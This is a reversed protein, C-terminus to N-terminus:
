GIIDSYYKDYSEVTRAIDFRRVYERAEDALILAKAYNNMMEVMADACSVYNDREVSMCLRGHDAVEWPGDHETVILPLGAGMGEAVTLGFGEYRSPHVMADFTHLHSYIYDRDRLGLFHVRDDVGETAALERLATLGDGAGIFTIEVNDIGRRHLEGLARIAIDQGKLEPSLRGVQLFRFVDSVERKRVPISDIRIGNAVTRVKANSLRKRVDDGVIDTIAAIHVGNCYQMDANLCHVTYLLRSRRMRVLRCFKEHHVHVIDPKLRCITMNLRAMMMLPAAGERRHFRIIEVAPDISGTVSEAERYNVILLTVRHGASIQGNMIDVLMTEAGGTEM